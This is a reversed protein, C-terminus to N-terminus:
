YRIHIRADVLLWKCGNAVMDIMVHKLYMNVDMSDWRLNGLYSRSSLCSLSRIPNTVSVPGLPYGGLSLMCALEVPSGPILSISKFLSMIRADLGCKRSTLEM